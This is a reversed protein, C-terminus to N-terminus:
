MNRKVILKEALSIWSMKRCNTQNLILKLLRESSNWGMVCRFIDLVMIYLFGKSALYLNLKFKCNRLNSQGEEGIWRNKKVSLLYLWFQCSGSFLMLKIWPIKYPDKGIFWVTIVFYVVFRFCVLTKISLFPLQTYSKCMLKLGLVKSWQQGLYWALKKVNLHKAISM